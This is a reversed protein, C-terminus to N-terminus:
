EIWVGENHDFREYNANLDIVNETLSVDISFPSNEDFQNYEEEDVM